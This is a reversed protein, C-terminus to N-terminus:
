RDYSLRSGGLSPRGWRFHALMIWIRFTYSMSGILLQISPWSPGILDSMPPPCPSPSTFLDRSQLAAAEAVLGKTTQMKRKAQQIQSSAFCSNTAYRQMANAGPALDDRRLWPETRQQWAPQIWRPWSTLRLHRGDFHQAFPSANQRAISRSLVTVVRFPFTHRAPPLAAHFAACKAKYIILGQTAANRLLYCISTSVYEM